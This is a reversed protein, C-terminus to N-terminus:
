IINKQVSLYEIWLFFRTYSNHSPLILSVQQWRTTVQIELSVGSFLAEQLSHMTDYPFEWLEKGVLLYEYHQQCQEQKIILQKSSNIVLVHKFGKKHSQWRKHQYQTYQKMTQHNNNEFHPSENRCRFHLARGLTFARYWM